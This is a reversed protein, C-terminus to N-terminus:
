LLTIIACPIVYTGTADIVQPARGSSPTVRGTTGASPAEIGASALLDRGIHTIVGDEIGIDARYQDSATVITGREVLLFNAANTETVNGDLDLLLAYAEPDILHAEREALYYHM